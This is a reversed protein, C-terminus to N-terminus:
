ASVKFVKLQMKIIKTSM